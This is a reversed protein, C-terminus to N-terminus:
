HARLRDPRYKEMVSDLREVSVDLATAFREKQAETPPGQPFRPLLKDATQQFQEATLGLDRAILKVPPGSPESHRGAGVVVAFCLTCVAVVLVDVLGYGLGRTAARKTREEQLTIEM